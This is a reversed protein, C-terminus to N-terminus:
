SSRATSAPRSCSRRCPWFSTASSCTSRTLALIAKKGAGKLSEVISWADEMSRKEGPKATGETVGIEGAADILHVVVDADDAGGWASRVM